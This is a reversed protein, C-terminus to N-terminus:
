LNEYVRFEQISSRWDGPTPLVVRGQIKWVGAQNIDGTVATYQIIGDTGDTKFVSTQTVTTNDPKKFIIEQTTATSVDIPVLPTEDLDRVLTVEFVTGEDDLHVREVM